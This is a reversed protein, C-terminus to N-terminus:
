NKKTEYIVGEKMIKQAFVDLEKTYLIRLKEVDKLDIESSALVNSPIEENIKFNLPAIFNEYERLIEIMKKSPNLIVCQKAEDLTKFFHRTDEIRQAEVKKNEELKQAESKQNEEIKKADRKVKKALKRTLKKAQEQEFVVFESACKEIFETVFILKGKYGAKHFITFIAEHTFNLEMMEFIKPKMEELFPIELQEKKILIEKEMLALVQEKTIM